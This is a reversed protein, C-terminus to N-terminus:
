SIPHFVVPLIKRTRHSVSVFVFSKWVLSKTALSIDSADLRFSFCFHATSFGFSSLALCKTTNVENIWRIFFELINHLRRTSLQFNRHKCCHRAFGSTFLVALGTATRFITLCFVGANNLGIFIGSLTQFSGKMFTM